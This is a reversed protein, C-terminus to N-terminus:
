STPAMLSKGKRELDAAKQLNGLRQYYSALTLYLPGTPTKVRLASELLEIAQSTHGTKDLSRFLM